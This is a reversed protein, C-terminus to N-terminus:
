CDMRPWVIWPHEGAMRLRMFVTWISQQGLPQLALRGHELNGKLMLGQYLPEILARM